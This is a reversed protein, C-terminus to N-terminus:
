EEIRIVRSFGTLRFIEMVNRNVGKLILGNKKAMVQHAYVMVRLGASSIYDVGSMDMIMSDYQSANEQVAQELEVQRTQDGVRQYLRVLVDVSGSRRRYFM